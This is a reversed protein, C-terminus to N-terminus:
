DWAYSAPSDFADAYALITEHLDQFRVAFGMPNLCHGHAGVLSNATRYLRYRWSQDLTAEFDESLELMLVSSGRSSWVSIYEIESWPLHVKSIRHDLIGDPGIEIKQDPNRYLQVLGYIGLFGFFGVSLLGLVLGAYESDPGDFSGAALFIGIVVFPISLSLILLTKGRSRKFEITEQPDFAM